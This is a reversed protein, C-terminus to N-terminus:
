RIQQNKYIEEDRRIMSHGAVLDAEQVDSINAWLEGYDSRVFEAGIQNLYYELTERNDIYDLAVLWKYGCGCIKIIQKFNKM